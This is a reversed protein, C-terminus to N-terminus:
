TGRRHLDYVYLVFSVPLYRGAQLLYETFFATIVFRFYRWSHRPLGLISAKNSNHGM